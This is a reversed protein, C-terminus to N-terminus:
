VSVCEGDMWGVGIGCVWFLTWRRTGGGGGLM